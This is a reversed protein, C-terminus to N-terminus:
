KAANGYRYKAAWVHRSIDNPFDNM